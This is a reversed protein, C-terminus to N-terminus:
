KKLVEALEAMIEPIAISQPCHGQCAGCGICDSPKGVSDIKDIDRLAFPGDLKYANYVKLVEPINIQMPCDDCCYRCATCPVKVANSFVDCAKFLIATEEENLAYEDEYTAVNDEIDSLRTMGSLALQVGPLSKLWRFGWSAISWDPHADKLIKNADETLDALRGGRISEMVMIPINRSVLTEYEAKATGNLWDFYNLQIQAFDWAHHDAFKALSEVSAHSSFGLYTIKGLKQQELFYDICGNTLYTDVNNDMLCHILYFDIRDVGYRELQEEFVAKYDPNAGVHYKTTIYYSERPYKKLAHGVFRESEGGHYVYASDYYNIGHSMAYDIVEQAKDYDIDKPTGGEKLPLRMNGMGLRSLKIDKFNKYIM